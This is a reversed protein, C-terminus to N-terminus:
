GLTAKGSIRITPLTGNEYAKKIAEYQLPHVIPIFPKYGQNEFMTKLKEFTLTTQGSTPFPDTM